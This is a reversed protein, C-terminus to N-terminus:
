KFITKGESAQWADYADRCNTMYGSQQRNFDDWGQAYAKAFEYWGTIAEPDPGKVTPVGSADERGCAYGLGHQMAEEKTM